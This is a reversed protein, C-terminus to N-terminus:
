PPMASSIFSPPELSSSFTLSSMSYRRPMFSASFMGWQMVYRKALINGFDDVIFGRAAYADMDEWISEALWNTDAVAAIVFEVRGGDFVPVSMIFYGKAGEGSSITYNGAFRMGNLAESIFEESGTLKVNGMSYIEGYEASM